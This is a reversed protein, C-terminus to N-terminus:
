TTSAAALATARQDVVGLLFSAFTLMRMTQEPDQEDVIRHSIPNKFAGVAGVFLARVADAEGKEAGSDRLPGTEGFAANMLAVGIRDNGFGGANRVAIEVARYAKFIADPFHDPGRDVEPLAERAITPHLLEAVPLARAAHAGPAAGEAAAARGARTVAVKRYPNGVYTMAEALYGICELYAFGELLLEEAGRDRPGYQDVLSLAYQTPVFARGRAVVPLLMLALDRASM